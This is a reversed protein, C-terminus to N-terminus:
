ETFKRQRRTSRIFKDKIDSTLLRKVWGTEIPNSSAGIIAISAPHFLGDVSSYGDATM